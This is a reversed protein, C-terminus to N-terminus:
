VASENRFFMLSRRGWPAKWRDTARLKKTAEPDFRFGYEKFKAVWYDTDQCNVHHHGEQGPFAHTACVFKCSQFTRMVYPLFKEDIHELVEMCIGLDWLHDEAEPLPGTRYDHPIIPSGCVKGEVAPPYPEVGVCNILHEEFMQLNHGYGCGVDIMSKVECEVMLWGFVDRMITNGDGCPYCGGLENPDLEDNM